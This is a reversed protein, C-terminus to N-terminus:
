LFIFNIEVFMIRNEIYTFETFGGIFVVYFITSCYFDNSKGIILVIYQVTSSLLIRRRTRPAAPTRSNFFISKFNKIVCENAMPM